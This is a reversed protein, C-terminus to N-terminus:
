TDESFLRIYQFYMFKRNRAQGTMEKLIGLDVMRAVLDNAAPYTTGISEQVDNVTTIPRQYLKELVKHGNAATRGLKDTVASRHDERLQLISRTTETAQRSVEM